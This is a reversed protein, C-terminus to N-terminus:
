KVFYLLENNIRKLEQYYRRAEYDSIAESMRDHVYADLIDDFALFKAWIRAKEIESVNSDLITAEFFKKLVDQNM